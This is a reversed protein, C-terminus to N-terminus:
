LMRKLDDAIRAFVSLTNGRVRETLSQAILDKERLSDPAWYQRETSLPLESSQRRIEKLYAMDEKSVLSTLEPMAFLWKEIEHVALLVNITGHSTQEITQLVYNRRDEIWETRSLQPREPM